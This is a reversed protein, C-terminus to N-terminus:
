VRKRVDRIEGMFEAFTAELRAVVDDIGIRGWDVGQESLDAMATMIISASSRM